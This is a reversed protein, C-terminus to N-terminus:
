SAEQALRRGLRRHLLEARKIWDEEIWEDALLRTGVVMEEGSYHDAEVLAQRGEGMVLPRVEQTVWMVRCQDYDCGGGAHCAREYLGLMRVQERHLRIEGFHEDWQVVEMPAPPIYLTKLTDHYHTNM